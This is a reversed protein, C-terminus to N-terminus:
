RKFIARSPMTAPKLRPDLGVYIREVMDPISAADEKLCALIQEERALRHKLYATVVSQTAFRAAM